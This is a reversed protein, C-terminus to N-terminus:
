QSEIKKESEEQEEAKCEIGLRKFGDLILDPRMGKGVAHLKDDEFTMIRGNHGEM